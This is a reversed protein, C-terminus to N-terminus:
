EPAGGFFVCVHIDLTNLLSARPRENSAPDRVKREPARDALCTERGPARAVAEAFSDTIHCARRKEAM